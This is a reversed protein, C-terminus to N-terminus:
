HSHQGAYPVFNGMQSFQRTRGLLATAVGRLDSPMEDIRDETFDYRHRKLLQLEASCFDCDRLHKEISLREIITVLHRHYGLLTESSPCRATKCFTQPPSFSKMQAKLGM